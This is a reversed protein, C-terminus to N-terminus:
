RQKTGKEPTPYRDEQGELWILMLDMDAPAPPHGQKRAAEIRALALFIAPPPVDMGVVRGDGLDMRLRPQKGQKSM